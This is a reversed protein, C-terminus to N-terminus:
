KLFIHSKVESNRFIFTKVMPNSQHNCRFFVIFWAFIELLSQYFVFFMYVKLRANEIFRSLLYLYKERSFHQSKTHKVAGIFISLFVDEVWGVMMTLM